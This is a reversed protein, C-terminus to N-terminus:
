RTSGRGLQNHWASVEMLGEGSNAASRLALPQGEPTLRVFGHMVRRGRSTSCGYNRDLHRGAEEAATEAALQCTSSRAVRLRGFRHPAIGASRHKGLSPQGATAAHCLRVSGNRREPIPRLRQM